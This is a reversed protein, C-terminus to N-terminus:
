VASHTCFAPGGDASCGSISWVSPLSRFEVAKRKKIRLTMKATGTASRYRDRRSQTTLDFQQEKIFPCLHLIFEEGCHWGGLRCHPIPM